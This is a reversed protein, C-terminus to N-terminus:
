EAGGPGLEPWANLLVRTSFEVEVPCQRWAKHAEHLRKFIGEGINRQFKVKREGRVPLCVTEELRYLVEGRKRGMKGWCVCEKDDLIRMIIELYKYEQSLLVGARLEVTVTMDVPPRAETTVILHIASHAYFKQPSRWEESDAELSKRNTGAPGFLYYESRPMISWVNVMWSFSMEYRGHSPELLSRALLRHARLSCDERADRAGDLLYRQRLSMPRVMELLKLTTDDDDIRPELDRMLMDLLQAQIDQNRTKTLARLLTPLASQSLALDWIGPFGPCERVNFHEEGADAHSAETHVMAFRSFSVGVLNWFVEVFSPAVAPLAVVPVACLLAEEDDLLNFAVVYACIGQLLDHLQWRHAAAAIRFVAGHKRDDLEVPCAYLFARIAAFSDPDDEDSLEVLREASERFNASVLVAM